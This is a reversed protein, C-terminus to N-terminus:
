NYARIRLTLEQNSVAHLIEEYALKPKTKM